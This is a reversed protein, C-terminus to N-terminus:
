YFFSFLFINVVNKSPVWMVSVYYLNNQKTLEEGAAVVRLKPYQQGGQRMVGMQQKLEIKEKKLKDMQPIVFYSKRQLFGDFMDDEKTNKKKALMKTNRVRMVKVEDNDMLLDQRKVRLLELDKDSSKCAGM